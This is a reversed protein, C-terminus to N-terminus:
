HLLRYVLMLFLVVVVGKMIHTSLADRPPSTREDALPVPVSLASPALPPPPEARKGTKRAPRVPPPAPPSPEDVPLLDTGEDFPLLNFEKTIAM